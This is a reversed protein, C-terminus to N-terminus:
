PGIERLFTGFAARSEAIHRARGDAKPVVEVLRARPILGALREALHMPHIADRRNALILCPVSIGSAQGESVGPGDASIRSLLAATVDIPERAFFGRLSALNDPANAALDAAMASQEFLTRAKGAEHRSILAGVEANPAMNVPAAEVAWAPRSLVLGRVLDPRTAAIRLSIAAGMSIGGVVCPGLGEAEIFAILDDSFTAISFASPDGAESAGHGRCELTIRQFGAVDPFAEATQAADGCLGHQFVVAAGPADSESVQLCPAGARELSRNV